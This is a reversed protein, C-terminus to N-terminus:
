AFGRIVNKSANLQCTGVAYCKKTDLSVCECVCVCVRACVCVVCM